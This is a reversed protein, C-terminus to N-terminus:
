RPNKLGAELEQVKSPYLVPQVSGSPEKIYRQLEKGYKRMSEANGREADNSGELGPQSREPRFTEGIHRGVIGSKLEASGLPEFWIRHDSTRRLSEALHIIEPENLVYAIRSLPLPGDLDDTGSTVAQFKQLEPRAAKQALLLPASKRTGLM